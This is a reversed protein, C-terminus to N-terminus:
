IAKTYTAFFETVQGKTARGEAVGLTIEELEVDGAQLEYGNALLFVEAATVAVRKNGDVFPHNACIHFHYAAAMEFLQSHLYDGSFTAHPMAVASELLGRDRMGPDGGFEAIVRNHIEIVDDVSLFVISSM